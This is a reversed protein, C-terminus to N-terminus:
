SRLANGVGVGALLGAEIAYHILDANGRLELANMAHYKHFAVTRPTIQLRRAVEKMPLGQVLLALVEKTRETLQQPVGAMARLRDPNGDAIFRTLHQGGDRVVRLAKLLEATTCHKLLYGETGFAFAKMALTPTTEATLYVLKTLPWRRKIERGAALGDLVPLETGCLVIDPHLREVESILSTGDIVASVILFEPPLAIRLMDLILVHEDALCITTVHQM